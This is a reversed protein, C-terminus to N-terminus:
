WVGVGVAVSPGYYGVAPPPYGYAYGYTYPAYGYGYAPYGYTVVPPAVVVPAPSVYPRYLGYGYGWGPAYGYPGWYRWRHVLQIKPAAVGDDSVRYIAPAVTLGKDGASATSPALLFAAGVLVCALTLGFVGNRTIMIADEGGPGPTSRRAVSLEHRFVGSDESRCSDGLVVIKCEDTGSHYPAGAWFNM